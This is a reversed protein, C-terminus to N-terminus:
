GPTSSSETKTSSIYCSFTGPAKEKELHLHLLHLLQDIEHLLNRHNVALAVLFLPFSIHEKRLKKLVNSMAQTMFPFNRRVGVISNKVVIEGEADAYDCKFCFDEPGIWEIIIKVPKINSM